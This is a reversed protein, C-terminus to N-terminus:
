VAGRAQEPMIHRQRWNHFALGMEYAAKFRVGVATFGTRLECSASVKFNRVGESPAGGFDINLGRPLAWNILDWYALSHPSLKPLHPGVMLWNELREDGIVNASIALVEGDSTKVSRWLMRPHSALREGLSRIESLTYLSFAGQHPFGKALQNPLWETIEEASSDTAFVGRSACQKVSRRRLQSMSKWCDDASKNGPIVYSETRRVEYGPLDFQDAHMNDASSFWWVTKVARHKRLLPEVAQVLERMRGARFAAGRLRPGFNEVPFHNVTSVFGRRRYLVPVIGLPEGDSEVAYARFEANFVEAVANLFFWHDYGTVGVCQGLQAEYSKEDSIVEV